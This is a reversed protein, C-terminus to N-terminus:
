GTTTDVTEVINWDEPCDRTGFKLAVDVVTTSVFVCVVADKALPKIEKATAMAKLPVAVWTALAALGSPSSDVLDDGIRILAQLRAARAAKDATRLWQTFPFNGGAGCLMNAHGFYIGTLGEYWIFVSYGATDLAALTALSIPLPVNDSPTAGPNTVPGSLVRLPARSVPGSALRGAFAGLEHGYLQPCIMVHPAALANTIAQAAALYAAWTQASPGAFSAIFFMRRYLALYGAAKTEMAALDAQATVPKCVVVFEPACGAMAADIVDTWHQIATHGIAWAQWLPGGNSIADNITNVLDLAAGFLTVLNTGPGIPQLAGAGSTVTGVFLAVGEIQPFAGPAAAGAVVNAYPLTM